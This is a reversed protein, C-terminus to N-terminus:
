ARILNNVLVHDVLKDSVYGFHQYRLIAPQNDALVWLNFRQIVAHAAFYARMLASGYHLARFKEAVVWYRIASTIGQTEFYLLGALTQLHKMVLIQRNSIAAEIEHMTPLQEAYRDFSSNLMDFVVRADDNGAYVPQLDGASLRQSDSASGLRALRRLRTYLRFGTTELVPVLSDSVAEREILDMIMPKMKVDPLAMLERKLAEGNTACFNVRWFDRDTRFFFAAEPRHEYFLEGHDIWNQLKQPVPFFNTCFAPASSKVRQIVTFVRDVKDVPQM